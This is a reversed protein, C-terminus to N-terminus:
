DQEAAMRIRAQKLNEVREKVANVEKALRKSSPEGKLREQALASVIDFGCKDPDRHYFRIIDFVTDLGIVDSCDEWSNGNEYGCWTIYLEVSPLGQSDLSL